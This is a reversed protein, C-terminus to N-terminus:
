TKLAEDLGSKKLTYTFELTLSFLNIMINLLRKDKKLPLSLERRKDRFLEEQQHDRHGEIDKILYHKWLTLM